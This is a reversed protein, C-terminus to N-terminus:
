RNLNTYWKDKPSMGTDKNKEASAKSLFKSLVKKQTEDTITFVQEEEYNIKNGTGQNLRVTISPNDFYGKQSSYDGTKV